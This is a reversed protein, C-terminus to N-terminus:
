RRLRNWCQCFQGILQELFLMFLLHWNFYQSGFNRFQLDLLVSISLCLLGHVSTVFGNAICVQLVWQNNDIIAAQSLKSIVEHKWMVHTALYLTDRQSGAISAQRTCTNVRSCKATLKFPVRGGLQTVWTSYKPLTLRVNKINDLSDRPSNQNRWLQTMM